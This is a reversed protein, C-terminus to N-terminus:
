GGEPLAFAVIASGKRWKEGEGPFLGAAMGGIISGWGTPAAVYQRGNVAYTVSSGRHGAGTQFRWLEAGTRADLAFFWGEPNGTFLLNGATALMSSLLLYRYAYTWKREGTLPDWADIHSYHSRGKPLSVNGSGGTFFEGEVPKQAMSEINMCTELTPTYIWRTQPSYAMQNWSRAGMFGSPCFNRMEGVVPERRDLLRGDRTVGSIWTTEEPVVFANLV